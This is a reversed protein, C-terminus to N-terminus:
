SAAKGLELYQDNPVLISKPELVVIVHKGSNQRLLPSVHDWGQVKEKAIM